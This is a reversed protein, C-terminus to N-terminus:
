IKLLGSYRAGSRKKKFFSSCVFTKFFFIPGNLKHEKRLELMTRFTKEFGEKELTRSVDLTKQLDCLPRPGSGRGRHSWCLWQVKRASRLNGKYSM